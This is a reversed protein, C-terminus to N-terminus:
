SATKGRIPLVVGGTLQALQKKVAYLERLLSVERALAAELAERYNAASAKAQDLKDRAASAPKAQEVAAEDIALILEHFIPRSKKISGKGRGAEVAVSDNTVRTGKPVRLPQKTKLRELAQFYESLANAM